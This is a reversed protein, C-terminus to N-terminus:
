RTARFGDPPRRARRAPSPGSRARSGSSCGWRSGSVGAGRVASRDGRWPTLSGITAEGVAVGRCPRERGDEVGKGAPEVAPKLTRASPGEGAGISDTEGVDRVTAERIRESDPASGHAGGATAPDPEPGFAGGINPNRARQPGRVPAPTKEWINTHSNSDLCGAENLFLSSHGDLLHFASTSSTPLRFSFPPSLGHSGSCTMVSPFARTARMRGTRSLCRRPLGAEYRSASDGRFSKSIYPLSACERRPPESGPRM